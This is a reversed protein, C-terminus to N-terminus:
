ESDTEPHSADARSGINASIMKFSLAITESKEPQIDPCDSGSEGILSCASLGFASILALIYYKM